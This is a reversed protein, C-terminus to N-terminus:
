RKNILNIDYKGIWKLGNDSKIILEAHEKFIELIYCFGDSTKFNVIGNQINEKIIRKKNSYNIWGNEIHTEIFIMDILNIKFIYDEIKITDSDIIIIEPRFDIMQSFSISTLLILITTLIKKM